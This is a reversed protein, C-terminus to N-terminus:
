QSIEITRKTHTKKMEDFEEESFSLFKPKNDSEGDKGLDGALKFYLTAAQTKESHTPKKTIKVDLTEKISDIALSKTLGRDEMVQLLATYVTGSKRIAISNQSVTGETANPHM